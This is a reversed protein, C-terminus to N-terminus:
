VVLIKLLPNAGKWFGIYKAKGVGFYRVCEGYNSKNCLGWQFKHLFKPILTSSALIILSILKVKLVLRYNVLTLYM